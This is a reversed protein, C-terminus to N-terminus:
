SQSYTSVLPLLILQGSGHPVLPCIVGVGGCGVVVGFGVVVEFGVVVGGALQIKGAELQGAPCTLNFLQVLQGSGTVLQQTVAVAVGCGVALGCGVSVGVCFGLGVGLGIECITLM